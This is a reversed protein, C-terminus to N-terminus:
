NIGNEKEFLRITQNREIIISKYIIKGEITQAWPSFGQKLQYLINIWISNSCDQWVKLHDLSLQGTPAPKAKASTHVLSHASLVTSYQNGTGRTSRSQGGTNRFYWTAALEAWLMIKDTHRPKHFTKMLRLLKKFNHGIIMERRLLWDVFWTIIGQSLIPRTTPNVTCVTYDLAVTVWSLAIYQWWNQM